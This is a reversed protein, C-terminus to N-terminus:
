PNCTGDTMYRPRVSTNMISNPDSVAVELGWGHLTEFSGNTTMDMAACDSNGPGWSWALWGIDLRQAEALIHEYAIRGRCQVEAHAFEGVLFPLDLAVAREFANTIRGRDNDSHWWHVSVLTNKLSDEAVIDPGVTLLQEHNRGWGSADVILPVRIGARRMQRIIEIYRARFIADPVDRGAENAINVLLYKEHKQILAVTEPRLWYAVVDELRDWNGTADHMELMPIMGLDRAVTIMRDAQGPAVDISWVARVVNAGTRAIESFTAGQRDMWVVMKNVGRLVVREGCPSYLHRGDVYFTPREGVRDGSDGGNSDCASFSAILLLVVFIRRSSSPQRHPPPQHKEHDM